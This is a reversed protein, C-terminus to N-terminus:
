FSPRSPLRQLIEAVQDGVKDIKAGHSALALEVNQLRRDMAQLRVNLQDFRANMRSDAGAFRADLDEPLHALIFEIDQVRKEITDAVPSRWPFPTTSTPYRMEVIDSSATAIWMCTSGSRCDRQASSLSALGAARRVHHQLNRVRQAEGRG